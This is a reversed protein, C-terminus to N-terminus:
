KSNIKQIVRKHIKPILRKMKTRLKKSNTSLYSEEIPSSIKDLKSQTKSNIKGANHVFCNRLAYIYEILNAEEETLLNIEYSEFFKRYSFRNSLNLRQSIIEYDNLNEDNILEDLKASYTTQISQFYNPYKCLVEQILEKYYTEFLTSLSIIAHEACSTEIRALQENQVNEVIKGFEINKEYANMQYIRNYAKIKEMAEILM